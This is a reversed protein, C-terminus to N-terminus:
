PYQWGDFRCFLVGNGVDLLPEGDNPCAVPPRSAEREAIDKAERLIGLFQDWSM